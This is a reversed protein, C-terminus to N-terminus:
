PEHTRLSARDVFTCPIHIVDSRDENRQHDLVALASRAAAQANMRISALPPDHLAAEHIDDFGVVSIDDPCRVGFAHMAEMLAIAQVDNYALIATPRTPARSLRKVLAHIPGGLRSTSPDSASILLLLDAPDRGTLSRMATRWGALRDTATASARPDNHCIFYAIRRHGRQWLHQVAEAVVTANDACICTVGHHRAGIHVHPVGCRKLVSPQGLSVIGHIHPLMGQRRWLSSAGILCTHGAHHVAATLAATMEAYYSGNGLATPVLSHGEIDIAILRQVSPDRGLADLIRRALRPGVRTTSPDRAVLSVATSSIGLQRAISRFSPADKPSM